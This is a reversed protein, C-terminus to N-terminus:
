IRSEDIRRTLGGTGDGVDITKCMENGTRENFITPPHRSRSEDCYDIVLSTNETPISILQETGRSEDVGKTMVPSEGLNRLDYSIDSM